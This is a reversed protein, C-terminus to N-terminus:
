DGFTGGPFTLDIIRAGGGGVPTVPTGRKAATMITTLNKRADFMVKAADHFNENEYQEFATTLEFKALEIHGEAQEVTKAEKAARISDAASVAAKTPPGIYPDKLGGGRSAASNAAGRVDREVKGLEQMHSSDLTTPTSAGGGGGAGGGGKKPNHSSQDHAGHKLVASKVIMSATGTLSEIGGVEVAKLIKEYDSQSLHALTTERLTKLANVESM